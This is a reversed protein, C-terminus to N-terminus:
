RDEPAAEDSGRELDFIRAVTSAIERDGSGRILDIPDALLRSVLARTMADLAELEEPTLDHLKRLARQLERKRVAEAREGLARIVPEADMGVLSEKFRAVEKAVFQDAAEAAVQRVARHEDAVAQLDALGYVNVGPLSRVGPEVDAPMALDLVFLPRAPRKGMARSVMDVTVVAVPSATCSIVVDADVLARGLATFPIATGGMDRAAEEARAPRRSTVTLSRIGHHRLTRAALKGTEGAGVLLVDRVALGGTARELLQVGISSISLRNRDLGTDNRARRAVRLAYHFARSLGSSVTGAEGAYRLATAVQGSIEAEGLVMSDLGTAVRFMHRVADDGSYSYLYRGIDDPPEGTRSDLVRFFETTRAGLTAADTGLSYIETRNCTSLIVGQGVVHVLRELLGKQAENGVALRALRDVSATRHSIGAVYYIVRSFYCLTIRKM